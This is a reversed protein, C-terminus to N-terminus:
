KNIWLTANAFKQIYIRSIASTVLQYFPVTSLGCFRSWQRYFHEYRAYIVRENLVNGSCTRYITERRQILRTRPLRTRRAQSEDSVLIDRLHGSHCSSSSTSCSSYHSLFYYFWFVITNYFNCRLSEISKVDVAQHLNFRILDRLLCTM